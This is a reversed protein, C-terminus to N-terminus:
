TAQTMLDGDALFFYMCDGDESKVGVGTIPQEKEMMKLIAFKDQYQAPLDYPNSSQAIFEKKMTVAIFTGDQMLKIAIGDMRKCADLVSTAVKYNNLKERWGNPMANVLETPPQSPGNDLVFALYDALDVLRGNIGWSIQTGARSAVRTVVTDVMDVIKEAIEDMAYPAFAELSEKLAIKYHKTKKTNSRGRRGQTIRKSNINFIKTYNGDRIEHTLWVNGVKETGAYVYYDDGLKADDIGYRIIGNSHFSMDPIKKALDCMLQHLLPAPPVNHDARTVKLKYPLTNPHFTEATM